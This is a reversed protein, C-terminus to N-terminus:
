SIIRTLEHVINLDIKGAARLDLVIYGMLERSRDTIAIINLKVPTRQMKHQHLSRKDLEWALESFSSLEILDVYIM